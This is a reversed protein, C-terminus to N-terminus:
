RPTTTSSSSPSSFRRRPCSARTPTTGTCGTYNVRMARRKAEPKRPYLDRLGRTEAIHQLIAAGEGVTLGCRPSGKDHSSPVMGLPNIALYEEKKNEGKM